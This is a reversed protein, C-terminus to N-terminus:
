CRGSTTPVVARSSVVASHRRAEGGRQGTSVWPQTPWSVVAIAIGLAQVAVASSRRRPKDSRVPERNCAMAAAVSGNAMPGQSRVGIRRRPAQGMKQIDMRCM